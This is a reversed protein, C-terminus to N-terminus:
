CLGGRVSQQVIHGLVAADIRIAMRTQARDPGLNEFSIFPHHHDDLTSLRSNPQLFHKGSVFTLTSRVCCCNRFKLGNQLEDLEREM